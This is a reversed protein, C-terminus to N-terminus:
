SRGFQKETRKMEKLELEELELWNDEIEIKGAVELLEEIKKRRLYALLAAKIAKNLSAEGTAKSVEELVEKDIDITTRM